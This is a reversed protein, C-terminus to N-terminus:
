RYVERRHGIKLVLVVLFDNKVSYLVRYDGSRLRFIGEEGALKRAGEPYPNETLRDIRIRLREQERRPLSAFQKAAGRAFEIRFV